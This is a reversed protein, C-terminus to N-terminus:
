FVGSEAVRQPENLKLWIFIFSRLTHRKHEHPENVKRVYFTWVYMHNYIHLCMPLKNLHKNSRQLWLNCALFTQDLVPNDQLNPLIDFLGKYNAEQM